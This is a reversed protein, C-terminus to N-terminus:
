WTSHRVRVAHHPRDPKPHRGSPSVLPEGGVGVSRRLIVHLVAVGPRRTRERHPVLGVETPRHPEAHMDLPLLEERLQALQIGLEFPQGVLSPPQEASEILPALAEPRPHGPAMTPPRRRVPLFGKRREGLIVTGEPAPRQAGGTQRDETPVTRQREGVKVPEKVEVAVANGAGMRHLPQGIRQAVLQLSAPDTTDFSPDVLEVGPEPGTPSSVPARLRAQTAGGGWWCLM